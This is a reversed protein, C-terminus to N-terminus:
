LPDIELTYDASGDTPITGADFMEFCYTGEPLRFSFRSGVISADRFSTICDDDVVTGLAFGLSTVTDDEATIEIVEIRVTRTETLTLPGWDRGLYDVTGIQFFPDIDPGNPDEECAVLCLGCLLVPLLLLRPSM